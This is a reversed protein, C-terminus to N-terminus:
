LNTKEDGTTELLRDLANALEADHSHDRAYLRCLSLSVPLRILQEHASLNRVQGTAPEYVFNQRVAAASIPRHYHRAVDARFPLERLAAPLLARVRREVLDADTFISTLESEGQEFRITRECAMRWRLGRRLVAQWANGLQRLEPDGDAAWREVDVLLSWETLGRYRDLHEMPNGPFLRAMTPRFLEALTLDIARVTRHFYLSRFLEGRAEIFHVLAALGKAHLTLGQPTFFTYHLLRDLDFARPGHGAMYSDRLVFDMNDVTYIGCFLSRLLRLWVPGASSTDTPRKILFAVHEPQLTEHAALTGHPNARIARILDALDSLIIQRGLDEHTLDFQHLYHDDFFHGFPGHGVDHLLAAIRLLSEVYARSPVPESGCAQCLSPYLHAAARSALHMAGLVHQFRTHEATPYVWWATQLQHIRRLRQVWPHDILTQEAIEAPDRAATFAIYGHIPDSILSERDYPTLSM